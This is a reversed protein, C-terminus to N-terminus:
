VIVAEISVSASSAGIMVCSNFEPANRVKEIAMRALLQKWKMCSYLPLLLISRLFDFDTMSNIANPSIAIDAVSM